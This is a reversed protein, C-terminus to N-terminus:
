LDLNVGIGFVRNSRSYLDSKVGPVQRDKYFSHMYGFDVHCRETANVRIGVGLNNSSLNFSLDNMYGDSLGYQTTQWSASVTLWKCIDYEAGASVEYTNHDILDQKNGFKKAAKDFYEHFGANIRVTQIPSYQVGLGLMGPVDERVKEGDKFQALPSGNQAAQAKAVANMESSNKLNMKTPAEFKAAVNWQDNIKYDIGIIPTVGFGTQDCNLSLDSKPDVELADAGSTGPFAGAAPVSYTYAMKAKVDQVYGNYNCNAYVGRLGVYASLNEKVKYTAGLQLGFYYSRGKMYADLSYGAFKSGYTGTAAIAQATIPDMGTAAAIKQGVVLPLNANVANVLDSNSYLNNAYLAEFSGLGKDFECKGGGGVLAFHGSVSWKGKNWSASLSPIVPALAKGKFDHTTVGPNATNYAFLPCTTSIDRNQKASQINLSIHWGDSLFATGAPNMYIGSLDIIGDQSMQRLYAANQNSNTLLGGAFATSSACMIAAAVIFKKM